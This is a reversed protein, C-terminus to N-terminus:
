ALAVALELRSLEVDSGVAPAVVRVGHAREPESLDAATVAAPRPFANTRVINTHEPPTPPEPPTPAPM